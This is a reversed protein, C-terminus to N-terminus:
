AEAANTKAALQGSGWLTIVRWAIAPVVGLAAILVGMGALDFGQVFLASAFAALPFTFSAWMASFGSELIWRGSLVLALLIVTGIGAAVMPLNPVGALGGVTALLSAPALHIALLPRLPAPPIRRILQVASAAWIAVAVAGTVWFLAVALGVWGVDPAAIGGVIFGVFSLHWGPNVGRAESPLRMLVLVTLAALVLHVLLAAVLVAQALGVSFPALVAALAMGGMSMAALGTRGPLVKLDDMVVSPRRAMKAGYAFAAYCWLVSVAGLVLDALGLPLGVADSGRRLALGLGFLGLIAPFIAPPTRAFRGPKRPPFEPPPYIKPRRQVREAMM